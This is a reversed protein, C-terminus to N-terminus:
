FCGTHVQASVAKPPPASSSHPTAAAETFPGCRLPGLRGAPASTQPVSLNAGVVAAFPLSLHDTAASSPLPCPGRHACPCLSTDTYSSPPESLFRVGLSDAQKKCMLAPLWTGAARHPNGSTNLCQKMIVGKPFM